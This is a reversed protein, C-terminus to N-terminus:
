MTCVSEDHSPRAKMTATVKNLPLFADFDAIFYRSRPLTRFRSIARRKRPAPPCFVVAPIRCEKARPTTCEEEGWLEEDSSHTIETVLSSTEEQTSSCSSLAFSQTYSSSFSQYDSSRIGIPQSSLFLANSGSALSEQPESRTSYNNQRSSTRM